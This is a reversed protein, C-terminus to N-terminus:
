DLYGLARLQELDDNTVDVKGGTDAHPTLGNLTQQLTIVTPLQSPWLNHQEKPDDDLNYLTWTDNDQLWTLKHTGDTAGLSRHDTGWAYSGHMVVPLNPQAGNAIARLDLSQTDGTGASVLTNYIWSAAVPHSNRSVPVGDGVVILPTRVLEEFIEKGHGIRGREMFQEGHDAVAVVLSPRQSKDAHFSTVLEQITQDMHRIEEDYVAKVLALDTPSITKAQKVMDHDLPVLHAVDDHHVFPVSPHELYTYHPDFYHVWLLYPETLGHQLVIAVDTADQSTLADHSANWLHDDFKRFGDGFGRKRNLFQNTIVGATDYGQEVLAEALTTTKPSIGSDFTYAGHQTPFQGTMISAMSPLTWPAQVWAKEFVTGQAALSDLFPTTPRVSGSFGVHDWRVTDMTILLINPQTAQTPWTKDRTYATTYVGVWLMAAIPLLWKQLTSRIHLVLQLWAFSLLVYGLLTAPTQMIWDLLFSPWVLVSLVVLLTSVVFAVAITRVPSKRAFKPALFGLICLPLTVWLASLSLNDLLVRNFLRSEMAYTAIMAQQVAIVCGFVLGPFLGSSLHGAHLLRKFM